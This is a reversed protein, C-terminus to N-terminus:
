TYLSYSICRRERVIDNSVTVVAWYENSVDGGSVTTGNRDIVWYLSTLGPKARVHCGINVNREGVYAGRAECEIIPADLCVLLDVLHQRPRM